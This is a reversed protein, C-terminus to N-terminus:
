EIIVKLGNYVLIDYIEKVDNGLAKVEGAINKVEEEFTTMRRELPKLEENVVQRIAQLDKTSLSM